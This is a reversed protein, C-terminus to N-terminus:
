TVKALMVVVAYRYRPETFFCFGINSGHSASVVCGQKRKEPRGVETEGASSLKELILVPRLVIAQNYGKM